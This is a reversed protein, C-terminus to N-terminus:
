GGVALAGSLHVEYERRVTNCIAASPIVAEVIDAVIQGRWPPSLPHYDPAMALTGVFTGDPKVEITLRVPTVKDRKGM